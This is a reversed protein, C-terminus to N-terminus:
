LRWYLIACALYILSGWISYSQLRLRRSNEDNDGNDVWGLVVKNLPISFRWRCFLILSYPLGLVVNRQVSFLFRFNNMM